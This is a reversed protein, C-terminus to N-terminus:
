KYRKEYKGHSIHRFFKSKIWEKFAREGLGCDQAIEVGEGTNFSIPLENYIRRQQETLEGLPSSSFQKHAKTACSIFYHCLSIAGEISDLSISKLKSQGCGYKMIELVIAFRICYREIKTAMAAFAPSGENKQDALNDFWNAYENMAEKTLRLTKSKSKYPIKLIKGIIDSWTNTIDKPIEDHNLKPYMMKDPYAFLWRDIFGSDIKGKAFENLLGPQITGIVGICTDDINIPESSVRNVIINSGTFLQTWMQEDNGSRYKNFCKIFGILEDVYM